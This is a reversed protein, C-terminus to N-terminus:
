STVPPPYKFTVTKSGDAWTLSIRDVEDRYHDNAFDFLYVLVVLAVVDEQILGEDVVLDEVVFVRDRVGAIGRVVEKHTERHQVFIPGFGRDDVDGAAGEYDHIDIM